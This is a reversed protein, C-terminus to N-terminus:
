LSLIFPIGNNIKYYLNIQKNTNWLDIENVKMKDNDIQLNIAYSLYYKCVEWVLCDSSLFTIILSINLSSYIYNLFINPNFVSM